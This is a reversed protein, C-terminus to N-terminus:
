EVYIKGALKRARISLVKSREMLLEVDIIASPNDENIARSARIADDVTTKLESLLTELSYQKVTKM